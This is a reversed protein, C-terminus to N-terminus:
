WLFRDHFERVVREAEINEAVRDSVRKNPYM